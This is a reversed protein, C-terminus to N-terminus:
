YGAPCVGLGNDKTDLVLLNDLGVEILYPVPTGGNIDVETYISPNDKRLTITQYSTIDVWGNTLKTLNNSVTCVQGDVIIYVDILQIGYLAPDLASNYALQTKGSCIVKTGAKLNM